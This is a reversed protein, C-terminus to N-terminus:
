QAVRALAQRLLGCSKRENGRLPISVIMDEALDVLNESPLSKRENGRLPISVLRQTLGMKAVQALSKRENGRLPISVM